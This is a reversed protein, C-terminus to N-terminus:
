NRSSFGIIKKKLISQNKNTFGQTKEVIKKGKMWPHKGGLKTLIPGATRSFFNFIHFTQLHVFLCVFSLLLDSFRVQAKLEPSSFLFCQEIEM